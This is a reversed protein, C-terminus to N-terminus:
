CPQERAAGGSRTRKFPLAVDNRIVVSIMIADDIELQMAERTCRVGRPCQAVCFKSASVADSQLKAICELPLRDTKWDRVMYLDSGSFRGYKSGLLDLWVIHFIFHFCVRGRWCDSIKLRTLDIVCASNRRATTFVRAADRRM